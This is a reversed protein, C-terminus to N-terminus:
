WSAKVMGPIKGEHALKRLCCRCIHFKRYYARVRGCLECRHYLRTQFKPKQLLKVKLSMRAM